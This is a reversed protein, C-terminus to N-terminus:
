GGIRVPDGPRLLSVRRLFEELSPALRTVDWTERSVLYLAPSPSALESKLFGFDDFADRGVALVPYDAGNNTNAAVTAVM